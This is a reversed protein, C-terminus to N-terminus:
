SRLYSAGNLDIITGSAWEAAPSALYLAAGAIEEPMAVRGFPSQARIEDGRPAKLHENTMDTEVFGPAITGVTIGHPALAIALSQGLANMGAKSAGYAPGDPEGRFAGRSSVNVIRGGRKMHRVACWTVNAAGVLNVDLTERWAAQWDEYSVETIPHHFFVGANNVLVDIGGLAEAAEDVMRRVEAPDALDAQVTTHGEGPLEARLREALDASGRHHIAIRDGAAAFATAVARGIGRSAGTVLVARGSM